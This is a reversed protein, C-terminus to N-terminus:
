AGARGAAVRGILDLEPTLAQEVEFYGGHKMSFDGNSDAVVYKFLTRDATSFETRRGLYEMRINTKDLRLTADGGIIFYSQNNNPDYTGYM